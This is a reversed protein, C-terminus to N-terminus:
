LIVLGLIFVGVAFLLHVLAIMKIPLEFGVELTKTMIGVQRIVVLAFILYIGLAILVLIKAIGWVPLVPVM